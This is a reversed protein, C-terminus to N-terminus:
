KILGLMKSISELLLDKDKTALNKFEKNGIQANVHKRIDNIEQVKQKRKDKKDM